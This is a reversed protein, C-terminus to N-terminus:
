INFFNLNEQNTDMDTFPFLIDYQDDPKIQDRGQDIHLYEEKLNDIKIQTKPDSYKASDSIQQIFDSALDESSYDLLPMIELNKRKRAYACFCSAMFLDSYSKSAITGSNSREITALQSILTESKIITPNNKIEDYLNAIMLEKTKANTNIGHEKGNPEKYLFPVYNFNNESHYLLHEVISKGISNNEIALIIRENVIKFLWQFVDDVLEGYKTLSGLKVNIEAIQEFNKFSFIEISDFAGKTSSASDVGILYYDMPDIIDKFVKMDTQSRPFNVIDYDRQKKFQSLISDSFICNSAGIFILM